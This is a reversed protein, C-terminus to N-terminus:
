VTQRARSASLDTERVRIHAELQCTEYLDSDRMEQAPEPKMCGCAFPLGPRIPRYHAMTPKQLSMTLFCQLRHMAVM